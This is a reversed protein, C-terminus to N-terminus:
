GKRLKKRRVRSFVGLENPHAGYEITLEYLTRFQGGLEANKKDVSAQVDVAKFAQKSAKRAVADDSRKAWVVDHGPNMHMHLSYGAYELCSRMQPYAEQLQGAMANDCAVRFVAHSSLLLLAEIRGRPDKWGNSFAFFCDDINSIKTYQNKRQHFTAWRSVYSADSYKSLEDDGWGPPPERRMGSKILERIAEPRGMSGSFEKIFQDLQSLEKPALRVTIPTSGVRPRGRPRKKSKTSIM